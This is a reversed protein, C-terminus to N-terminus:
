LELGAVYPAVSVRPKVGLGANQDADQGVPAQAVLRRGDPHPGEARTADPVDRAFVIIRSQRPTVSETPEDTVHCPVRPLRRGVGAAESM